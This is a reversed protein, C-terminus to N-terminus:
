EDVDAWELIPAVQGNLIGNRTTLKQVRYQGIGYNPLQAASRRAGSLSGWFGESNRNSYDQIWTGHWNYVVRYVDISVSESVTSLGM